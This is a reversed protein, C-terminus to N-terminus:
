QSCMCGSALEGLQWPMARAQPSCICCYPLLSHRRLQAAGGKAAGSAAMNCCREEVGGGSM